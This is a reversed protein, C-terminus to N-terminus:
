NNITKLQVQCEMNNQILKLRVACHDIVERYGETKLTNGRALVWGNMRQHATPQKEGHIVSQPLRAPTGTNPLCSSRDWEQGNKRRPTFLWELATYQDMATAAPCCERLAVLCSCVSRGFSGHYKSGPLSFLSNVRKAWHDRRHCPFM